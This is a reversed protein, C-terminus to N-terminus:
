IGMKCKLKIGITSRWKHINLSLKLSVAQSGCCFWLHQAATNQMALGTQWTVKIRPVHQCHKRTHISFYSGAAQNPSCVDPLLQFATWSITQGESEGVIIKYSDEGVIVTPLLYFKLEYILAQIKRIRGMRM